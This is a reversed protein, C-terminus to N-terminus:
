QSGWDALLVFDQAGGAVSARVLAKVRGRQRPYSVTYSAMGNVDASAVAESSALISVKPHRRVILEGFIAPERGDDMRMVDARFRVATGAVPNPPSSADTVQVGVPQFNDGLVITQADGAVKHLRLATAAVPHVTFNRCPADSPGVCASIIVDSALQSVRVQTGAVGDADTVASAAGLSATGAMVAFDVLKGSAPSGNSVVVASLSLTASGGQAVWATPVPLSVPLSIDLASAVGSVTTSVSNGGTLSATILSAGVANVIVHVATEGNADTTMLCSALGCEVFSLANAPGVFLVQAGGIPTVGDQETVRVRIPNPAQTGVPVQPNSGAVLILKGGAAGYLLADTMDSIAGTVPDQLEITQPGDSAAPAETVIQDAAVSVIKAGVGGIKVATNSAFGIGRISVVTGGATSARAPTVSEGYLLRAQYRFDPRGDGRYDAIGIKFAGEGLFAAEMRSTAPKMTNFYNEQAAPASGESSGPSWVGLVPLLKATTPLGQEDLATILLTFSRNPHGALSYYQVDGYPSIVGKWDGSAPAPYPQAFTHPQHEDQPQNPAGQMVIDQQVDGGRSVTVSIPTATGSPSVGVTKYPGVAVSDTYLPTVPEITLQFDASSAGDPLELGSLDYFGEVALDNSGFRDWREGGATLLGTVPNGANGRFLFGSVSSAVYKRSAFGTASDIRRAVVNVGEMGQGLTGNWAPFRVVGRIRASNDFFLTKGPFNAVNASIVPYLRSLAARDDMKPQDADSICGSGQGCIWYWGMPHMVPYGAYDDARPPPSGSGVNENVQSWGLGLIQGLLRTLKYRLPPMAAANIVCNGNIVVLAHAATGDTTFRDVGGYASNASCMGVAGSGAGLLADTVSGDRDYVIAVPKDSNAQIDPPLVVQEGAYTVNAGSVDEDLKGGRTASLAVTPIATWNAFASAVLADADAERLYGSLDGRDTYYTVTGGAWVIPTGATGPQFWSVGAVNAPGGAEVSDPSLAFAIALFFVLTRGRWPSWLACCLKAFAAGWGGRPKM